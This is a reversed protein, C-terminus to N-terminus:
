KESLSPKQYPDKMQDRNRRKKFLALQDEGLFLVELNLNAQKEKVASNMLMNRQHKIMDMFNVMFHKRQKKSKEGLSVEPTLLSENVDPLGITM